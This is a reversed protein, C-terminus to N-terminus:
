CVFHQAHASMYVESDDAPPKCKMHTHYKLTSIEAGLGESVLESKFCLFNATTGKKPSKESRKLVRFMFM